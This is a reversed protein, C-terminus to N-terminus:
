DARKDCTRCWPVLDYYGTNIDVDMFAVIDQSDCKRCMLIPESSMLCDKEFAEYSTM